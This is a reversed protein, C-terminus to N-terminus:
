SLLTIYDAAAGADNTASLTHSGVIKILTTDAAGLSASGAISEVVYTDGGFVAYVVGHATVAGELDTITAALTAGATRATLTGTATVGFDGGFYIRDGTVAGTISTNVVTAYATGATTVHIYDNGSIATHAGLTATFVGATNSSTGDVDGLKILNSGTGVTVNVTGATSTDAISNNGNGLTITDVKTTVAGTLILGVHANDTAGSVTVGSTNTDTLTGITVNGSLTLNTLNATSVFTTVEATSTGTNSIALVHSNADTLSTIVSGNSGKFTLAGLNDDTFATITVGATGTETNNITFSTAQTTAQNLTGITLGSTGSVNLNSLGNDVLTTITHLGNASLGNGGRDGNSVFNVTGLGVSNADMLTLSGTTFEDISTSGLTVTLADTPGTADAVQYVLATTAGGIALTSGSAVNTFTASTAAKVDIAKYGKFITGMDFTGFVVAGNVGLTEFGTVKVTTNAATYNTAATTVILEDTTGSGGTIVKTADASITIVDQGTSGVFTQTTADLTATIKGSSTTTFSALQAGLSSVNSNFGAAGTVAITTLTSNINSLTFTSAGAVNLTTLSTDTFSTLTSSSAGTTVNLTKIENNQDLIDNSTAASMGNVNLKLTTNTPTAASNIIELRGNKGSLVLTDLANDNIVSNTGSGHAGTGAFNSLTVTKITNAVTTSASNADTVIVKGSTVGVVAASADVANVGTVLTAGQTGPAATVAAVPKVAAVAAVADAGTQAKDQAVTVSATTSGGTV